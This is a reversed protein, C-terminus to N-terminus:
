VSQYQRVELVILLSVDLQTAIDVAEYAVVPRPLGVEEIGGVVEREALAIEVGDVTLIDPQVLLKKGYMSM